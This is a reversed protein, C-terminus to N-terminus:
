RTRELRLSLSQRAGPALLMLGEGTNLADGPCSWPEVCIFDKDHLSWVVWRDLEPSGTLAIEVEPLGLSAVSGGHDRLHLDVEPASFDFGTFAVEQKSRNDFARTARTPIQARTKDARPVAFYPHFGAGFPMPSTGHNEIVMAIDLAPGRLSYTYELRFDWPYAARTADTPGLTLTASAAEGTSTAALDWPLNRAFGHQGLSGRTGQFSYADGALKGPSPFLVPIGGRVNKTRDDFTSRDLYLLDRGRVQWAIVMGGRSPALTARSDAADDILTLTPIPGDEPAVRFM